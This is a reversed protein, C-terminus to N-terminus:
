STYHGSQAAYVVVGNQSCKLSVHPETTATTSATFTVQNGWHALGDNSNLLVLSLNGTPVSKHGGGGNHAAAFAETSGLVLFAFSFILAIIAVSKGFLIEERARSTM